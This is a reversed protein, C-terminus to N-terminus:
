VADGLGAGWSFEDNTHSFNRVCKIRVVVKHIKNNDQMKWISFSGLM